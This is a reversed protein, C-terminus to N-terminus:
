VQKTSNISELESINAQCESKALFAEKLQTSLKTVDVSIFGILVVFYICHHNTCQLEELEKEKRELQALAHRKEAQLREFNHTIALNREEKDTAAKRLSPM